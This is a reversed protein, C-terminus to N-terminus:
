RELDLRFHVRIIDEQHTSILSTPPEYIRRESVVSLRETFYQDYGRVTGKMCKAFAVLAAIPLVHKHGHSTILSENDHSQEYVLAPAYQSRLLTYDLGNFRETLQPLSGVAYKGAGSHFHLTSNL